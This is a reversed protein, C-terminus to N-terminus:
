RGFRTLVSVRGIRVELNARRQQSRVAPDERAAVHLVRSVPQRDARLSDRQPFRDGFSLPFEHGYGDHSVALTRRGGATGAALQEPLERAVDFYNGGVEPARALGVM